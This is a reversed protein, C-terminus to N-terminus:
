AEIALDEVCDIKLNKSFKKQLSGLADMKIQRVRESSVGLVGAIQRLSWPEDIFGYYARLVFSEKVQLTKLAADLFGKAEADIASHDATPKEHPPPISEISPFCFHDVRLRELQTKSLETAECLEDDDVQRGQREATSKVRKVKRVAKQRWRPMNVLNSDYLEERIFLKIYYTAYSLFRTNRSPDYRDLANLVGLNGASILDKVQDPDRSYQRAIKVVQRLCNHVLADRAKIDKTRKYKRYLKREDEPSLMKTRGVEQYYNHFNKDQALTNNVRVTAARIVIEGGWM